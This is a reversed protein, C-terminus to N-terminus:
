YASLVHAVSHTPTIAAAPRTDTYSITYHQTFKFPIRHRKKILTVPVESFKYYVDDADHATEATASSKRINTKNDRLTTTYNYKENWEFRSTQLFQFKLETEEYM